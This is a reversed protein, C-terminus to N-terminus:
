AVADLLSQFVAEISQEGDIQVLLGKERYYDLVPQTQEAYVQMRTRITEENDDARGELQARKLLRSVLEDQSVHIVPALSVACGFEALIKELADVQVLNRPFGDLVAGPTCDPQSLRDRVMASTVEDPVLAGKDIYSRALKGL